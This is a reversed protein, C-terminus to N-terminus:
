INTFIPLRTSAIWVPANMLAKALYHTKILTSEFILIM